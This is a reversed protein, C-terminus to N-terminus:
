WLLGSPVQRHILRLHIIPQDLVDKIEQIVSETPLTTGACPAAPFPFVPPFPNGSAGPRTAVIFCALSPPDHCPRSATSRASDLSM